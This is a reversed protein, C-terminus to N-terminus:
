YSQFCAAVTCGGQKPAIALGIYFTTTYVTRYGPEKMAEEQTRNIVAESMRNFAVESVEEDNICHSVRDFGKVYPHALKLSEVFELKLVLQRLKSEM